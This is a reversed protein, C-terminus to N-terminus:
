KEYPIVYFSYTNDTFKVFVMKGNNIINYAMYSKDILSKIELKNTIEKIPPKEIFEDTNLYGYSYVIGQNMTRRNQTFYPQHVSADETNKSLSVGRNEWCVYEKIDSVYVQEIEKKCEFHKYLNLEKLAKITSKMNATVYIDLTEPGEASYGFYGSYAFSIKGLQTEEPTFWEASTLTCVDKYIAKKIKTYDDKTIDKLVSATTGDKATINLVADDENYDAVFSNTYTLYYDDMVFAGDDNVYAKPFLAEKYVEKAAKTDWLKIIEQTVDEGLYKYERTITTGDKKTYTVQFSSATVADKKETVLQHLDLILEIDEKDTAILSTGSTYRIQETFGNYDHVAPLFEAFPSTIEVKEIEDAAPVKNYTGFVGTAGIIVCLAVVLTLTIGSIVSIKLKKHTFNIILNCIICCVFGIAVALIIAIKQYIDSIAPYFYNDIGEVAISTILLPITFSSLFVLGKNIGKFGSNEPKYSKSYFQSLIALVLGCLIIWILSATLDAIDMRSFPTNLTHSEPVSNFILTTFYTPDLATLVSRDDVNYYTTFGYLFKDFIEGIIFAFSVPLAVLSISGAVAEVTRGAFFCAAVSCVFGVVLVQLLRLYELAFFSLLESSLGYANLNLKLAIVNPITLAIVMAILPIIVRNAFLRKRSIGFSLLTSNYKKRHLFEFQSIGLAMGAVLSLNLCYPTEFSFRYAAHNINFLSGALNFIINGNTFDKEPSLMFFTLALGYLVILLASTTTISNILDKKAILKNSFQKSKKMIM